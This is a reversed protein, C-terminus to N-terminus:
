SGSRRCLLYRTLEVNSAKDCEEQCGPQPPRGAGGPGGALSSAASLEVRWALGALELVKGEAREKALGCGEM